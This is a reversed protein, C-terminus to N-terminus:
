ARHRRSPAPGTGAASGTATICWPLARAAGAEDCWSPSTPRGRRFGIAEALADAEATPRIWLLGLELGAFAFGVVATLAGRPVDPDSAGPGTWWRLEASATASSRDARAPVLIVEALLAGSTPEAVAWSILEDRRGQEHRRSVYAGAGDGDLPSGIGMVARAVPDGSAAVLAPRDDLGGDARLSRLYAVGANIEVEDM